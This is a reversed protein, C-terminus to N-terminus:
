VNAMEKLLNIAEQEKAQSQKILETGRAWLDQIERNIRDYKEQNTEM